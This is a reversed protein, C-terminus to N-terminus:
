LILRQKQIQNKQELNKIFNQFREFRIYFMQQNFSM